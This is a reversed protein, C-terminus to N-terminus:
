LAADAIFVGAAVLLAASVLRRQTVGVAERSFRAGAIAGAAATLGLGAGLRWDVEGFLLFGTTAAIAIPVQIPQAAAVAHGAGAGLLLLLPILLVPGATGTLASGFGVALGIVGYASPTFTSRTRAEGTRLSRAAAIVLVLTIAATVFPGPLAVNAAAGGIAGPVAGAALWIAADRSVRGSRTYVFTGAVGTFFFSLSAIPTAESVPLGGVVVLLPVLLVGGIGVAGIFWGIVVVITYILM